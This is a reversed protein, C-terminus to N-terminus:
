GQGVQLLLLDNLNEQPNYGNESITRIFFRQRSNERWRLDYTGLEVTATGPNRLTPPSLLPLCSAPVARPPPPEHFHGLRGCAGQPGLCQRPALKCIGYPIVLRGAPLGPALPPGAMITVDGRNGSLSIPIGREPTGWKGRWDRLGEGEDVLCARHIGQTREKESVM